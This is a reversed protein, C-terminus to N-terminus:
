RHDKGAGGPHRASPTSPTSQKWETATRNFKSLNCPICAPRVNELTHPGGRSVPLDHDLQEFPGVECYTCHDGYRAIVDAKTFHEIVPTLGLVTVRHRYNRVWALHPNAANHASQRATIHEANRERYEAQRAHIQDKQAEHRAADYARERERVAPRARYELKYAKSCAKCWRALGDRSSRNRNFEILPKSKSCRPCRKDTM